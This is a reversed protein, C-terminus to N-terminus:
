KQAKRQRYAKQKCARSCYKPRQNPQTPLFSWGCVECTFRRQWIKTIHDGSQKRKRCTPGCTSADKRQSVFEKGCVDCRMLNGFQQGSIFAM